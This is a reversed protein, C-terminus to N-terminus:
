IKNRVKEISKLFRDYSLDPKHLYDAVQNKFFSNIYKKDSSIIVLQANSKKLSIDSEDFEIDAFIVDSMESSSNKLSVGPTKNIFDTLLEKSFRDNDIVECFLERM